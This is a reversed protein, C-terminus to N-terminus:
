RPLGPDLGAAGRHRESARIVPAGRSCAPAPRDLRGRREPRSRDGLQATGTVPVCNNADVCCYGPQVVDGTCKEGEPCDQEAPDCSNIAGGDPLVVFIQEGDGDGTSPNATDAETSSATEDDSPVAFKHECATTLGLALLM